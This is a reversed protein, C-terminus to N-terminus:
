HQSDAGEGVPQCLLQPLLYLLHVLVVSEFHCGLYVLFDDAEQVDSKVEGSAPVSRVHLGVGDREVDAAEGVVRRGDDFVDGELDVPPEALQGAGSIVEKSNHFRVLQSQVICSIMVLKDVM